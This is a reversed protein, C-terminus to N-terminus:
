ILHRSIFVYSLHPCIYWIEATSGVEMEFCLNKKEQLTEVGFGFCKMLDHLCEKWSCM